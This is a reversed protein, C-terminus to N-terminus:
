RVMVQCLHFYPKVLNSRNTFKSEFSLTTPQALVRFGHLREDDQVRTNLLVEVRKRIIIGTKINEIRKYISIFLFCLNITRVSM